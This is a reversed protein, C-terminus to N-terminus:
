ERWERRLLRQHEVGDVPSDQWLGFSDDLGAIQNCELYDRIAERVLAARSVGRRTRMQDLAEVQDKPLNLLVRM